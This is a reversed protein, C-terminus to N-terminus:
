GCIWYEGPKSICGMSDDSLIIQDTSVSDHSRDMEQKSTRHLTPQQELGSPAVHLVDRREGEQEEGVGVVEAVCAAPHGATAGGGRGHRELAHGFTLHTAARGHSSRSCM